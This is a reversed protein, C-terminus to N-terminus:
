LPLLFLAHDRRLLFARKGALPRRTTQTLNSVGGGQASAGLTLTGGPKRLRPPLSASAGALWLVTLLRIRSSGEPQRKPNSAATRSIRTPSLRPSGPLAQAAAPVMVRVKVGAVRLPAVALRVGVGVAM